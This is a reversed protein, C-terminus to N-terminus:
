FQQLMPLVILLSPQWFWVVTLDGNLESLVTSGDVRRLRYPRLSGVFVLKSGQGCAPLTLDVTEAPSIINFVLRPCRCPVSRPFSSLSVLGGSIFSKGVIVM